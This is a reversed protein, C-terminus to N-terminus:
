RTARRRGSGNGRSLAAMVGPVEASLERALYGVPGYRESLARGAYAHTLVGWAAAPMPALGRAAYGGILGALTDGSGSTALGPGGDTFICTRGDPQAIVTAAGKLAVCVNWESAAARAVQAGQASVEDKDRGTLHAMEGAHPTVVIPQDFQCQKVASMALADLVTVSERYLPLLSCVFATTRKEDVMGPGLVLAATKAAEAELLRCGSALLGGGRAEPLSMVKAEPIALALGLAISEPAAILLKGAGARLAAVAALLCAGPMERTGAIVLVRGRSEKDAHDDLPPLPWRALTARTLAIPRATRADTM